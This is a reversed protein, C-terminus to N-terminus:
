KVSLRRPRVQGHTSSQIVRGAHILRELNRYVANKVQVSKLWPLNLLENLIVEFGAALPPNEADPNDMAFSDPLQALCNAGNERTMRINNCERIVM